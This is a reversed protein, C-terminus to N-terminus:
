EEANTGNIRRTIRAPNVHVSTTPPLITISPLRSTPM